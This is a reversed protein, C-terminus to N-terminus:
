FAGFEKNPAEEVSKASFKKLEKQTLKTLPSARRLCFSCLFGLFIVGLRILPGWGTLEVTYDKQTPISEALLALTLGGLFIVDLGLLLRWALWGAGGPIHSQGRSGSVPLSFFLYFPELSLYPQKKLKM